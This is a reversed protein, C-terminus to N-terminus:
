YPSCPLACSRCGKDWSAQLWQKKHLAECQHCGSVDWGQIVRLLISGTHKGTIVCISKEHSWWKVVCKLPKPKCWSNCWDGAEIQEKRDGILRHYTMLCILCIQQKFQWLQSLIPWLPTVVGSPWWSRDAYLWSSSIYALCSIQNAWQAVTWSLNNFGMRLPNWNIDQYESNQGPSCSFDLNTFM